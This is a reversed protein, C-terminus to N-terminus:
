WNELPKKFYESYTKKLEDLATFVNDDAYVKNIYSEKSQILVRFARKIEILALVSIEVKDKYLDQKDKKMVIKILRKLCDLEAEEYTFYVVAYPGVSYLVQNSNNTTRHIPYYYGYKERFWRFCQSFTPATVVYSKLENARLMLPRIVLHMKDGTYYGFCPENFELEKLALAQEYPCFLSEMGQKKVEEM